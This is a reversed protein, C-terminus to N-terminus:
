KSPTSTPFGGNLLLKGLTDIRADYVVGADIINELCTEMVTPTHILAMVLPLDRETHMPRHGHETMLRGALMRAARSQPKSSPRGGMRVVVEAAIDFVFRGSNGSISDAPNHVVLNTCQESPTIEPHSWVQRASSLKGIWFYTSCLRVYQRCRLAVRRATFSGAILTLLAIVQWPILGPVRTVSAVLSVSNTPLYRPLGWLQRMVNITSENINV